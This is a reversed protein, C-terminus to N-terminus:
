AAVAGEGLEHRKRRAIEQEHSVVQGELGGCQDLWRRDGSVHEVQAVEAGPVRGDDEPGPRDAEHEDLPQPDDARPEDHYRVEDGPVALRGQREARVEGQVGGIIVDGRLDQPNGSAAVPEGAASAWVM